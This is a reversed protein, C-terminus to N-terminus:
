DAPWVKAGHLYRFVNPFVCGLSADKFLFFPLPISSFDALEGGFPTLKVRLSLEEYPCIKEAFNTESHRFSAHEFTM